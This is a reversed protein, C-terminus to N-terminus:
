LVLQCNTVVVNISEHFSITVNRLILVDSTITVLFRISVSTPITVCYTISALVDTIFILHSQYLRQSVLLM